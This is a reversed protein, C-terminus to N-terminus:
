FQFVVHSSRAMRLPADTFVFLTIEILYFWFLATTQFPALVLRYFVYHQLMFLIDFLVSFLGLGFKTPDGFLSEWDDSFFSFFAKFRCGFDAGKMGLLMGFNYADLIMQMMSLWGGTFDLLVNGISWGSTSKRRYNM